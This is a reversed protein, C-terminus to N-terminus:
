RARHAPRVTPGAPYDGDRQSMGGPDGGGVPFPWSIRTGPPGHPVVCLWQILLTTSSVFSATGSCMAGVGGAGERHGRRQLPPALTPDRPLGVRPDPTRQWCALVVSFPIGLHGPTLAVNRLSIESVGRGGANAFDGELSGGSDARPGLHGAVVVVDRPRPAGRMWLAVLFEVQASSM